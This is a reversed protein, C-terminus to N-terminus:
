GGQADSRCISDAMRYYAHQWHNTVARSTGINTIQQYFQTKEDFIM